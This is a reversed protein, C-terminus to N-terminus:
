FDECAGVKDVGALGGWDLAQQRAAACTGQYQFCAEGAQRVKDLVGEFDFCWSLYEGGAPEIAKAGIPGGCAALVLAAALARM